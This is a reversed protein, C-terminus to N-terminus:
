KLVLSYQELNNTAGDEAELYTLLEGFQHWTGIIINEKLDKQYMKEEQEKHTRLFAFAKVIEASLTITVILKNKQEKHFSRTIKNNNFILYEYFCTTCKNNNCKSYFFFAFTDVM